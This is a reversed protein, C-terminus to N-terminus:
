FFGATQLYSLLMLRWLREGSLGNGIKKKLTLMELKQCQFPLASSM